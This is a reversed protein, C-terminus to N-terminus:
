AATGVGLSRELDDQLVEFPVAGAFPAYLAATVTPHVIGSTLIAMCADAAAAEFLGADRATWEAHWAIALAGDLVRRVEPQEGPPSLWTATAEAAMARAEEPWARALSAAMAGPVGRFAPALAPDLRLALADLLGLNWAYRDATERMWEAFEHAAATAEAGGAPDPPVRNGSRGHWVDAVIRILTRTDQRGATATPCDPSGCPCELLRFARAFMLVRARLVAQGAPDPDGRWETAVARLLGALPM